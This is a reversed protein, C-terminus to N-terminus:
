SWGEHAIVSQAFKRLGEDGLRQALEVGPPSAVARLIKVGLGPTRQWHHSLVSPFTWFDLVPLTWTEHRDHLGVDPM